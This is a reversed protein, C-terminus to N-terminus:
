LGSFRGDEVTRCLLQFFIRLEAEEFSVGYHGCPMRLVEGKSFFDSGPLCVAAARMLGYQDEQFRSDLETIQRGLYILWYNLILM